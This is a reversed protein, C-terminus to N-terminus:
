ARPNPLPYGGLDDFLKGGKSMLEAVQPGVWTPITAERPGEVEVMMKGAVMCCRGRMSDDTATQAVAWAVDQTTNAPIGAKTWAEAFNSTIHTPTFFPAVANVRIANTRAVHQSARLLGMVGHKSTIYSVVGTGGFYGSTSSVLVVSGRSSDPFRPSNTLM